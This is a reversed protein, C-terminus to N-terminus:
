SYTHDFGWTRTFTSALSSLPLTACQTRSAQFGTVWLLLPQVLFVNLGPSSTLMSMQGAFFLWGTPSILPRMTILPLSNLSDCYFGSSTDAIDLRRTTEITAM